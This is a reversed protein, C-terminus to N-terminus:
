DDIWLEEVTWGGEERGRSVVVAGAPRGEGGFGVRVYDWRGDVDVTVQRGPGEAARQVRGEVEVHEGDKELVLEVELDTEVEDRDLM